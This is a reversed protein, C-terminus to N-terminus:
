AMVHLGSKRLRPAGVISQTHHTHSPCTSLVAYQRKSFGFSTEHFFFQIIIPRGAMVHDLPGDDKGIRHHSIRSEWGGFRRGVGAVRILAGSLSQGNSIAVDKVEFTSVSLCTNRM